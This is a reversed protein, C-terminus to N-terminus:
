ERRPVAAAAVQVIADLKEVVEPNMQKAPVLGALIHYSNKRLLNPLSLKKFYAAFLPELFEDTAKTNSWWVHQPDRIAVPPVLDHILRDMLQVRKEAEAQEFLNDDLDHRAYAELVSPSHLYNEIERRKWMLGTAGLDDPLARDLRDFIAVGVLECKAERLGHFHRRVADPRNGVYRVFPHDLFGAAKHNLTRAFAQLIALDTSGELYLVWGTQEAQYYEDFGIDRLAKLVQSGRDNLRDGPM